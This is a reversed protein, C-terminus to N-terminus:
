SSPPMIECSRASECGARRARMRFSSRDALELAEEQRSYSVDDGREEHLRTAPRLEQTGTTTDSHSEIVVGQSSALARALAVRQRQGGFSSPYRDGPLRRCLKLRRDSESHPGQPHAIARPRVRLGFAVNEFVTM